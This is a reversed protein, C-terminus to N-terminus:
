QNQLPLKVTFSSGVGLESKVEITGRHAIVIQKTIFLGLGLGSIKNFSVAREFRNFIRELNDRAIGIGRDTFKISAFEGDKSIEIQIPNGNGYKIANTLLNEFIQEIRDRDGKLILSDVATNLSIQVPQEQNKNLIEAFERAFVVLDFPTHELSLRGASIKSVDLMNEILKALRKTQRLVLSFYNKVRDPDVARPDGSKLSREFIQAQLHLSTLPTKL